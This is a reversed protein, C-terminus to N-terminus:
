TIDKWSSDLVAWKDSKGEREKIEDMKKRDEQHKKGKESTVWIEILKNKQKDTFMNYMRRYKEDVGKLEDSKRENDRNKGKLYKEQEDTLIKETARKLETKLSKRSSNLVKWEDSKGDRKRIKDMKKKDAQYEKGKKSTVWIEILKEKQKDTFIDDIRRYRRDVKQYEDSKGKKDEDKEGEGELYKKQRDTLVEITATDLEKKLRRQSSDLAEWEDSNGYREKMENMKKRDEQYKKGKESTVWIEILKERQKYTFMEEIKRYKGDVGKFEDSKEKRSEKEKKNSDRGIRAMVDESTIIFSVLFVLSLIWAFTRFFSNSKFKM